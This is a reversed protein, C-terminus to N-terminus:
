KLLEECNYILTKPPETQIWRELYRALRRAASIYEAVRSSSIEPFETRHQLDNRVPLLGDEYDWPKRPNRKDPKPTGEILRWLSRHKNPEPGDLFGEGLLCQVFGVKRGLVVTPGKEPSFYEIVLNLSAEFAVHAIIIAAELHSDELAIEAQTFIRGISLRSDTLVGKDRIEKRMREWEASSLLFISDLPKISHKHRALPILPGRGDMKVETDSFFFGVGTDLEELWYQGRDYKFFRILLNMCHRFIEFFDNGFEEVANVDCKVSEDQNVISKFVELYQAAIQRMIRPTTEYRGLTKSLRPLLSFAKEPTLKRLEDVPVGLEEMKELVPSLGAQLQEMQKM